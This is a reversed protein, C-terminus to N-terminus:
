NVEAKRWRAIQVKVQMRLRADANAVAWVSRIEQWSSEDVRAFNEWGDQIHDQMESPSDWYYLVPFSEREELHFWQQDAAAEIARNAAADDETVVKAESVHGARRIEGSSAVEMSWGEPAARLDILIGDPILVRRVENLADLMDEYAICCLSWTMLVIDFSNGPFPLHAADVQGFGVKNMLDSPCEIKAVRLEDADLDIGVVSRVSGAYPWTLRGDGCGIELVRKGTVDAYRRLTKAETREPDAQFTM